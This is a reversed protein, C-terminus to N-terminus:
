NIITFMSNIYSVIVPKFIRQDDELKKKNEIADELNKQKKRNWADERQKMTMTNDEPKNKDKIIKPQFTCDHVEKEIKEAAAEQTLKNHKEKLTM